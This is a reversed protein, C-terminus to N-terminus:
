TGPIRVALDLTVGASNHWWTAPSSIRALRDVLKLDVSLHKSLLWEVGLEAAVGTMFSFQQLEGGTRGVILGGSAFPILRARELGSLAYTYKLGLDGWTISDADGGYSGFDIATEAVVGVAHNPTFFFDYGLQAGMGPGGGQVHGWSHNSLAVVGASVRHRKALSPDAVMSSAQAIAPEQAVFMVALSVGASIGLSIANV